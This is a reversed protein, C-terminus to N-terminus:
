LTAYTLCPLQSHVNCKKEQVNNFNIEFNIEKTIHRHFIIKCMGESTLNDQPYVELDPTSIYLWMLYSPGQLGHYIKVNKLKM